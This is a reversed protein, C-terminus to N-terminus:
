RTKNQIMLTVSKFFSMKPPVKKPKRKLEAIYSITFTQFNTEGKADVTAGFAGSRM